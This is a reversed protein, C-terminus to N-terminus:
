TGRLTAALDTIPEADQQTAPDTQPWFLTGDVNWVIAPRIMDMDTHREM